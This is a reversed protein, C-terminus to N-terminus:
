FDPTPPQPVLMQWNDGQPKLNDLPTTVNFPYPPFSGGGGVQFGQPLVSGDPNKVIDTGVSAWKGIGISVTLTVNAAVAPLLVASANGDSDYQLFGHQASAALHCQSGCTYPKKAARLVDKERWGETSVGRQHLTQNANHLNTMVTDDTHFGLGHVSNDIAQGLNCAWQFGKWCLGDLDARTLPNNGVYNYLNLEQPNALNVHTMGSPDPSLWRGMSSAYYRYKFYDNGSESDREKGTFHQETADTGAGYTALYNGFPDSSWWSVMQGATAGNGVIELRKTGLWDNFSFYLAPAASGQATYTALLGGDAYVNQHWGTETGASWDLEADQTGAAGRLYTATLTFGNAATPAACASGAAPWISLSGKAVRRGEADYIYQTAATTLLNQVACLRGESDYAYKNVADQTVNGAADYVPGSAMTDSGTVYNNSNYKAWHTGNTYNLPTPCPSAAATTDASATALEGTRNGFSDYGWCQQHCTAGNEV